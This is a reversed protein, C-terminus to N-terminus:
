QRAVTVLADGALVRPYTRLFVVLGAHPAVVEQRVQGLADRRVKVAVTTTEIESM